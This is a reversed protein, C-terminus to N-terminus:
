HGAGQNERRQQLHDGHCGEISAAVQVLDRVQDGEPAGEPGEVAAAEVLESAPYLLHMSSEMSRVYGERFREM